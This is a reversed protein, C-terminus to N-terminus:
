LVGKTPRRSRLYPVQQFEDHSAQGTAGKLQHALRAQPSDPGCRSWDHEVCEAAILGPLRNAVRGGLVPHRDTPCWMMHHGLSHAVGATRPDESHSGM